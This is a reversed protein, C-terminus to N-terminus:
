SLYDFIKGIILVIINDKNKASITFRDFYEAM